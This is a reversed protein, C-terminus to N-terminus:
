CPAKRKLFDYPNQMGVLYNLFANINKIKEGKSWLLRKHCVEVAIKLHCFKKRMLKEMSRPSVDLDHKKYLESLGDYALRTPEPELFKEVRELSPKSIALSLDKAAYTRFGFIGRKLLFTIFNIKNRCKWGKKLKKKLLFLAKKLKNLDNFWWDPSDEALNEFGLPKLVSVKEERRSFEESLDEKSSNRPAQGKAIEETSSIPLFKGRIKKTVSRPLDPPLKYINKGCLLREKKYKKSLFTTKTKLIKGAKLLRAITIEAYRVTCGVKEAIQKFSIPIDKKGYNTALLWIKDQKKLKSSRRSKRKKKHPKDSFSKQPISKSTANIM